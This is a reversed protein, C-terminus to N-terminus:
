WMIVSNLGREGKETDGRVAAKEVRKPSMAMFVVHFFYLGGWSQIRWMLFRLLHHTFFQKWNTAGKLYSLTGLSGYPRLQSHNVPCMRKIGYPPNNRGKHYYWEKKGDQWWMLSSVCHTLWIAHPGLVIHGEHNECDINFSLSRACNLQLHGWRSCLIVPNLQPVISALSHFCLPLFLQASQFNLYSEVQPFPTREWLHHCEGLIHTFWAMVNHFQLCCGSHQSMTCSSVLHWFFVGLYNM